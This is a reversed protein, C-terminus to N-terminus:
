KMAGAIKPRAPDTAGPAHMGSMFAARFNEAVTSQLAPLEMRRLRCAEDYVRRIERPDTRLEGKLTQYPADTELLLRDAPLTQTCLRARKNNNLLPKGFSFYANIGRRLLSLAEQPSGIFSHFVVAPIKKLLGTDRFMYDLAKRCHIVVPVGATGALELQIYWVQQQFVLRSRFEETYLDIGTEGVAMIRHERLLTELFDTYERVPLLEDAAQPHMGFAPVYRCPHGARRAAAILEQQVYFEQPSHACCCAYAMDLDPSALLEQEGQPFCQVLHFHADCLM